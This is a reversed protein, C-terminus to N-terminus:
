ETATVVQDRGASKARYLATDAASLAQDFDQGPAWDSLGISVSADLTGTADARVSIPSRSVAERVRNMAELAQAAPRDQIIIFEDGGWRALLDTRPLVHAIRGAIARLYEDGALHGHQDNVDKLGDCDVLAIMRARDPEASELAKVLGFRNLLGTLEDSQAQVRLEAAAAAETLARELAHERRVRVSSAAVAALGAIAIIILRVTQAPVHGDAAFLGFVWGSLWTVVATLATVGPTAFVASLMPVVALVGVYATKPSELIDAVLIIVILALPLAFGLGWTSWASGTSRTAPAAGTM